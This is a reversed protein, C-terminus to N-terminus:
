FIDLGENLLQPKAPTGPPTIHTCPTTTRHLPPPEQMTGVICTAGGALICVMRNPIMHPQEHVGKTHCHTVPMPMNRRRNELHLSQWM